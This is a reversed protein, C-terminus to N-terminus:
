LAASELERVRPLIERGFFSMEEQDPWGSFLFQTIGVRKFEILAAAIDDAAGVLCAEGFYPVLGAGLTPTLWKSEDEEALKLTLRFAVSDTKRM